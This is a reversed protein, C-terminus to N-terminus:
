INNAFYTISIMFIIIIVIFILIIIHRKRESYLTGIFERIFANIWFYAKTRSGVGELKLGQETALLGTRLVHYNTTAFGINATKDNILKYSYNINEETNKSNDEILINKAKIGQTLLYEKMAEAESIIEDKGRGGSPVFVLDKKTEKLQENRFEIAKDVRGKLLPTLTGDKKIQCGLIIMYDKDYSPKRKVVKIAIIITAILICELYSISLYILSEVFNYLYPGPGNLNYINIVQSKMLIRYLTDPLITSICIFIGLLLGLLNRLSKGEKKILIINSIAVLIFTIFAIPFLVASVLSMLSIIDSITAFLGQYNFISLVNSILFFVIFIILGLYAINKYQYINEQKYYNYKKILIILLCILWVSLAIPIIESGTARGFYNNDTIVLNKHIYLMRGEQFGDHTLYINVKGEKKARVKVLLEGKNVKKSLVEIVDLNNEVEFEYNNIRTVDYKITYTKGFVGIVVASTLFLIFALCIMKLITKKM